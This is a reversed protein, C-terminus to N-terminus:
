RSMRVGGAIRFPGALLQESGDCSIKGSFSPPASYNLPVRVTYALTRPGDGSTVGWKVVRNAADWAGGATIEAVSWGAPPRDEVAWATTGPPPAVTITVRFTGGPSFAGVIEATAWSPRAGPDVGLDAAQDTALEAAIGDASLGGIWCAPCDGTVRHYTEGARWLFGARTVYSIPIPNPETPWTMGQKWAAGYATVEDIVLKGDGNTDASHADPFYTRTPTCGSATGAPILVGSTTAIYLSCDPFTVKGDVIPYSAGNYSLTNGTVTGGAPGGNQPGVFWPVVIPGPDFDLRYVGGIEAGLYLTDANSPSVRRTFGGGGAGPLGDNFARWTVGGDTTISANGLSSVSFIVTPRRPHVVLTEVPNSQGTDKSLATWSRGGDASRYFTREYTQQASSYLEESLYLNRSNVPNVALASGTRVNVKTWNLGGDVTEHLGDSMGLYYVGSTGSAPALYLVWNIVTTPSPLGNMALSWTSAGDTSRYVMTAITALLSRAGNPDVALDHLNAGKQLGTSRESWTAGGDTSKFLSRAGGSSVISAGGGAYVTSPSESDVVLVRIEYPVRYPIAGRQQWTGGRGTTVFVDGMATCAYVTDPATPAVAIASIEANRIGSSADTWHAGRDVSKLVGAGSAVYITSPTVPDIVVSQIRWRNGLDAGAGSGDAGGSRSIPTWSAGGDPSRIFGGYYVLGGHHGFDALGAYLSDQALPDIALCSVARGAVDTWTTGGDTSKHLVGSSDYNNPNEAAYLTTPSTPDLVLLNFGGSANYKSALVVTWNAGRDESRYVLSGSAAYLIATNLSNVVVASPKLSGLVRWDAGRNTSVYFADSAVYLRTSDVPDVALARIAGGGLGGAIATWTVGGNSSVYLKDSCLYLRSSDRPDIVIENVTKITLGNNVPTWTAAGDVSKYVGTRPTGEAWPLSVAAYLTLRNGPDMILQTVAGGDPGKSIWVNSADSSTQPKQQIVSTGVDSGRAPDPSASAGPAALLFGVVFTLTVRLYFM